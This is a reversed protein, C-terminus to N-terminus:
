INQVLYDSFSFFIEQTLASIKVGSIFIYVYMGKM